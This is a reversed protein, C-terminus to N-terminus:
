WSMKKCVKLLGLFGGGPVTPLQFAAQTLRPGGAEDRGGHDM